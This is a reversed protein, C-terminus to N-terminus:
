RGRKGYKILTLVLLLYDRWYEDERYMQFAHVMIGEMDRMASKKHEIRTKDANVVSKLAALTAAQRVMLLYRGIQAPNIKSYDREKESVYSIAAQRMKEIERNKRLLDTLMGSQERQVTQKSDAAPVFADARCFLIAGFGENQKTGIYCYKPLTMDHDARFVLTSGAAIARIHPKKLNWKTNYGTVTRYRLASCCLPQGDHASVGADPKMGDFASGLAQQLGAASIDYGGAGDPLLADSLLLATVIDGAKFAATEHSASSLNTIETIRCCSYQATKSRGFHMASRNEKMDSLFRFVAEVYGKKGSVTGHFYQGRIIATQTYLTQEQNEKETSHHYVTETLPLRIRCGTDCYGHKVPKIIKQEHNPYTVINYVGPQGKIRGLIVPVPFFETGSEDSIYLNSFRINQKLFMEEFTADAPHNKLYQGAFFGLVSTGSIYDASDTSTNGPLMLDDTLRVTYSFSIESDDSNEVSPFAIQRCESPCFECRVAGYGRNRKYGLNRLALCIESFVENYQADLSIEAEFVMEKGDLPSYRRIVRTFRLSSDKATDEEIATASRTYTFLSIVEAATLGAAERLLKEYHEPHADSIRLAGGSSSGRIGFIADSLAKDTGILDAAERLCGKLRRAGIVPFGASDYSVDTDIVSSFGDGSAPCLDSKLTIRLKSM